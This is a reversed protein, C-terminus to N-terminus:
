TSITCFLLYFKLDIIEFCKDLKEDVVTFFDRLFIITQSIWVPEDYVLRTLRNFLNFLFLKGEQLVAYRHQLKLFHVTHIRNFNLTQRFM